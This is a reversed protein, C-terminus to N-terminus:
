GEVRRGDALRVVAHATQVLAPDHSSAIVTLGQEALLRLADIVSAGAVSDLSATPEDAVLVTPNGAAAFALALRQQEGGSLQAPRYTRRPALGILDLLGDDADNPARGRLQAGLRVHEDARAYSLLNFAPQQFVYGIRSRRISRRKRTSLAAISQGLLWMGGSDPRDLIGLMRLLTSKGSGSPGSIVTLAGAAFHATVDSVAPVRENGVIYARSIGEVWVGGTHSASV